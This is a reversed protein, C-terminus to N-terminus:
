LKCAHPDCRAFHEYEEPAEGVGLQLVQEGKSGYRYVTVGKVGLEWARRYVATVEGVTSSQPLNVTKSVANDTHRQFAAQIRLHDEPAIELATRFLAKAERPVGDLGALTGRALLGQVLRESYFSRERAYRLFLPNLEVLSQGGLVHQRRYALAFLPEIGASTGALISLTGTPAISTRTANRLQLGERGYVSREWNPFAGREHALAHSAVMAEGDLHRMLGDAVTAAQDSAYPIGLLILMEAFGMVGLGVKRNARTASEIQPAPWRGVELADDLFRIGLRATQALKEWDIAHGGAGRRVMHSLNISALNCSEFPLLGVEGCPNTAEILGVEPTPNDRNIADLFLLGPDGTEWAAQGIRAFLEAASVTRAPRGTRPHRLTWSRDAVAAEMFRDTAGVSLNFNRFGQGDRKADIFEEADPHDVRLVGMNAGRRKGGQKINETACDFIRMFSVPGSATGGTSAVPDGKPRLRSFSFGVGGGSQQILAMLKLADFIGGMSDEVPLVFCASLQGLPAGANMLCPSNPLLDLGAMADYFKEEWEGVAAAGSRTEAQAVSRAVRRFLEDPGEAVQGSPDRRLYRARLVQLANNSLQAQV